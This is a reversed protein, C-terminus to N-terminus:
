ENLKDKSTYNKQKKTKNKSTYIQEYCTIALLKYSQSIKLVDLVTGNSIQTNIQDEKREILINFAFFVYM